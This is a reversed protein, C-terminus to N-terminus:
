FIAKHIREIINRMKEYSKAIESELSDGKTLDKWMETSAKINGQKELYYAELWKIKLNDPFKEKAYELTKEFVTKDAFLTELLLLVYDDAKAGFFPNNTYALAKYYQRLYLARDRFYKLLKEKFKEPLSSNIALNLYYEGSGLNKQAEYFAKLYFYYPDKKLEGYRNKELFIFIQNFLDIDRDELALLGLKLLVKPIFDKKGGLEYAKIFCYSAKTYFNYDLYIDGLTYYAEGCKTKKFLDKDEGELKVILSLNKKELGEKFLSSISECYYTKVTEILSSREYTRLFEIANKRALFYNKNEFSVKVIIFSAEEAIKEEPYKSKILTAFSILDQKTKEPLLEKILVKEYAIQYLRFKSFLAEKTGDWNTIILEYFIKAREEDKKFYAEALQYILEPAEKYSGYVNIFTFFDDEAKKLEGKRIFYFGRLKYLEGLVNKTLTKD